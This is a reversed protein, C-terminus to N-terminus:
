EGGADVRNLASDSIDHLPIHLERWYKLPYSSRGVLLEGQRIGFSGGREFLKIMPEYLDIFEIAESVGEDALAYIELYGYCIAKVYVHNIEHLNPCLDYINTDVNKELVKAISFIPYKDTHAGFADLFANVRRFYESILVHHSQRVKDGVNEFRISSIRKVANNLLTGM